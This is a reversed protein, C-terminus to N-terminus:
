TIKGCPVVSIGNLIKVGSLWGHCAISPSEDRLRHITCELGPKQHTRRSPGIFAGDVM